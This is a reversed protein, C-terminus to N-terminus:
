GPPAISTGENPDPWLPGRRHRRRWAVRAWLGDSWLTPDGALHKARLNGDVMVVGLWTLVVLAIPLWPAAGLCRLALWGTLLAGLLNPFPGALAIVLVDRATARRGDYLVYGGLDGEGHLRGLEMRFGGVVLILNSTRGVKLQRLPLGRLKVALAHGLEHVFILVPLGAAGLNRGVRRAL